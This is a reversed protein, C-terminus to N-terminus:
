SAHVYARPDRARRPDRLLRRERVPRGRVGVPRRSRSRLTGHGVGRGGRRFGCSPRAGTGLASEDVIRWGAARAPFAGACAANAASARQGHLLHRLERRHRAGAVPGGCCHLNADSGAGPRRVASRPCPRAGLAHRPRRPLRREAARRRGAGAGALRRAEPEEMGDQVLDTVRRELHDRLEAALEAEARTRRVLRGLWTM